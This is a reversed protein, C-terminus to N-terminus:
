NLLNSVNILEAFVFILRSKYVLHAIYTYCYESAKSYGSNCHVSLLANQAKWMIEYIARNEPFLKNLM